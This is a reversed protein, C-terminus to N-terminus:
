KRWGKTGRNFAAIIEEKTLIFPKETNASPRDFSHNDQVLVDRLSMGRSRLPTNDKIKRKASPRHNKKM